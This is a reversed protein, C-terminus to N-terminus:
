RVYDAILGAGDQRSDKIWKSVMVNGLIHFEELLRVPPDIVQIGREALIKKHRFNLAESNYRGRLEATQARDLVVQQIDTPLQEFAERNVVLINRPLWAQIDYFYSFYKWSEVEVGGTSSTFMADLKRANLTATLDSYEIMMATGGVLSALQGTTQNYIRFRRGKLDDVSDIPTSLFLGQPPWPVSFLVLLNQEALRQALFPKAARYLKEAKDYSTALFPVSYIGFLPDQSLLSSTLIEGAAIKRAKVAAAIDPHAYVESNASVQIALKGQTDREVQQAFWKINETHFNHEPYPTAIQWTEASVQAIFLMFGIIKAVLKFVSLM